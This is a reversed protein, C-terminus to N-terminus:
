EDPVIGEKEYVMQKVEQIETDTRVDLTFTNGKVTVFISMCEGAIRRVLPIRRLEMAKTEGNMINECAFM